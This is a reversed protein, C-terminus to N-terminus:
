AAPEVGPPAQGDIGKLKLKAVMCEGSGSSKPKRLSGPPSKRFTLCSFHLKTKFHEKVAVFFKSKLNQSFLLLPITCKALLSNQYWITTTQWLPRRGCIGLNSNHTRTSRDFDPGFVGEADLLELSFGVFIFNKTVTFSCKLVWNRKDQRVKLFDREPIHSRMNENITM